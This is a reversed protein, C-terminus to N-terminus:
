YPKGTLEKLLLFLDELRKIKWTEGSQVSEVELVLGPDGSTWDPNTIQWIRLLYAHYNIRKDEM